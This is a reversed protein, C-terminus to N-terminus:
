FNYQLKNIAKKMVDITNGGSYLGYTISKKQHGVIDATVNETIGLNEMKTTFTKRISHFSKVRGHFDLSEKLKKFKIESGILIIEYLM